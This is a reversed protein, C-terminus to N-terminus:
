QKQTFREKTEQIIGLVQPTADKIEKVKETIFSIDESVEQVTDKVCVVKQKFEETFSSPNDMYNKLKNKLKKGSHIVEDRTTKDLLSVAAGLLAGLAIGRVLKNDQAM